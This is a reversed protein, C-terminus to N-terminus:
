LHTNLHKALLKATCWVKYYDKNTIIWSIAGLLTSTKFDGDTGSPGTYSAKVVVLDANYSSGAVGIGNGATACAIGSVHTGHGHKDTVSSSGDVSNYTAIVNSALDEHAINCGTDIVAVAVGHESRCHSWAQHAHVSNEAAANVMEVDSDYEYDSPNVGPVSPAEDEEGHVEFIYNPTVEAVNPKSSLMAIAQPVTVDSDVDVVVAPNM